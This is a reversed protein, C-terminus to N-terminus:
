RLTARLVAVADDTPVLSRLEAVSSDPSAAALRNFWVARIGAARAGAIDTLWADGLMVAREPAAGAARLGAEFMERDPKARGVEESTVLAAVYRDLGCRALKLRQEAVLNNTVVVVPIGADALAALLNLAGRVPRWAQQYAERYSAAIAIARAAAAREEVAAAALLRRFREIRAADVDLRGTLVDQHLRELIESHRTEFDSVPWEAWRPELERLRALAARTAHAHDFLTDDLDALVAQVAAPM